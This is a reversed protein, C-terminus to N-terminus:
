GNLIVTVVIGAITALLTLAAVAITWKAVKSSSTNGTAIRSDVSEIRSDLQSLKADMSVLVDLTQEARRDEIALREAREEAMERAAQEMQEQNDRLTRAMEAQYNRVPPLTLPPEEFRPIDFKPRVTAAITSQFKAMTESLGSQALVTKRLGELAPQLKEVLERNRRVAEEHRPHSEDELAAHMEGITMKDIGDAADGGPVDVQFLDLGADDLGADDLGEADDRERSDDHQEADDNM